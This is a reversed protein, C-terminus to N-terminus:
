CLALGSWGIPVASIPVEIPGLGHSSRSAAVLARDIRGHRRVAFGPLLDIMMACRCHVDSCRATIFAPSQIFLYGSLV